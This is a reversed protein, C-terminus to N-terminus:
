RTAPRRPRRSTREAELGEACLTYYRRIPDANGANFLYRLIGGYARRGGPKRIVGLGRSHTFEFADHERALEEWLRRFRFDAHREGTDHLLVIGGPAVKPYWTDFDHRVADYTHIGDIQLLDISAESFSSLAGDFTSRLLHSFSEYRESNYRQVSTYVEEGYALSHSDGAWTDVAYCTCPYGAEAVSQCFGFYSKGYHTGLEVLLRPRLSAVLDRAFPLHGSWNRHLGGVGSRRPTWSFSDLRPFDPPTVAARSRDSCTRSRRGRALGGRPATRFDYAIWVRRNAHMM